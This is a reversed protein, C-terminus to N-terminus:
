APWAEIRLMVKAAHGRQQAQVDRLGLRQVGDDIQRGFGHAMHLHPAQLWSVGQTDEVAQTLLPLGLQLWRRMGGDLDLRAGAAAPPVVMSFAKLEGGKEM